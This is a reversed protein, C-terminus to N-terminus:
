IEAGNISIYMTIDAMLVQNTHNPKNSLTITHLIYQTIVKGYTNLVDEYHIVLAIIM